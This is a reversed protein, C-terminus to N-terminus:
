YFLNGIAYVPVIRINPLKGFNELTSRIGYPANKEELFIRMSQMGGQVGSKVEIPVIDDGIQTVYDVEANSGKSERHWYYLDKQRYPPGAKLLELGAFLETLNGKNVVPFDSYILLDAANLGLLRQYIGTDLLLMKQKRINIEAGLPPGNAATHTVPIVLGAMILLEM